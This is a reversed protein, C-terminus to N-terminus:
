TCLQLWTTNINPKIKIYTGPISAECGTALLTKVSDNSDSSESIETKANCSLTTHHLRTKQSLKESIHDSCYSMFTAKVCLAILKNGSLFFTFICLFLVLALAEMCPMGARHNSSLSFLSFRVSCGQSQTQPPKEKKNIMWRFRHPRFCGSSDSLLQM